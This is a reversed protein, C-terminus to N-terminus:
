ENKGGSFKIQNMNNDILSLLSPRVLKLVSVYSGHDRKVHIINNKIRWCLLLCPRSNALSSLSGVREPTLNVINNVTNLMM